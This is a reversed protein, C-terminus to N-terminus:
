CYGLRPDSVLVSRGARRPLVWRKL